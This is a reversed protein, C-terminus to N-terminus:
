FLMGLPSGVLSLLMAQRRVLQKLQKATTGITKLLGYDHIEGTVNIYFVNYIILYGSLMIIILIGVVLAISQWDVQSASYGWNIGYAVQDVDYGNRELVEILQGEIDWSHSFNFNINSYGAYCYPNENYPVSPEPAVEDAFERSIWCEQAM